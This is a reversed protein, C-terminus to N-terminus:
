LLAIAAAQQALVLSISAAAPARRRPAAGPHSIVASHVNNGHDASFFFQSVNILAFMGVKKKKVPPKKLVPSGRQDADRQDVHAL